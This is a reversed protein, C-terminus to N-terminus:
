FYRNRHQPWDSHMIPDCFVAYSCTFATEEPTVQLAPTVRKGMPFMHTGQTLCMMALSSLDARLILKEEGRNFSAKEKGTMVTSNSCAGPKARKM